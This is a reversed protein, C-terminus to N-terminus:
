RRRTATKVSAAPQPLLQAVRFAAYLLLGDETRELRTVADSAVKRFLHRLLRDRINRHLGDQLRQCGFGFLRPKVIELTREEQRALRARIAM